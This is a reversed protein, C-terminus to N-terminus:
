WGPLLWRLLMENVVFCDYLMVKVVSRVASAGDECYVVRCCSWLLINGLLTVKTVFERLGRCYQDGLSKM